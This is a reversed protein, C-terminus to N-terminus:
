RLYPLVLSFGTYLAVVTLLVAFSRQLVVTDLRQGVWGGMFSGGIAAAAFVVILAWDLELESGLRGVLGTASNITIVLLSTGVARSMPMGLVLTLAPVIAFGGGVGFFGTLVGSASAVVLVLGARRPQLSFPRWTMWRDAAGQPRSTSPASARRWMVSAVILLLLALLGLTLEPNAMAAVQAGLLAGGAGLVGFAIGDAWAVSKTRAKQAVAAVGTIGVVALSATTAVVPPQGLLYVLAPVAIIGGGAGLTGMVMGVVLGVAVQLIVDM